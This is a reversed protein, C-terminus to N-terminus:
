ELKTVEGDDINRTSSPDNVMRVQVMVAVADGGVGVVSPQGKISRPSFADSMTSSDVM